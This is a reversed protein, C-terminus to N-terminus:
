PQVRSRTKSSGGSLRAEFGHSNLLVTTSSSCNSWFPTGRIIGTGVQVITRLERKPSLMLLSAALALTGGILAASVVIQMTNQLGKALAPLSSSILDVDM